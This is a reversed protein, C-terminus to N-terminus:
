PLSCRFTSFCLPVSIIMNLYLINTKTIYRVVFRTWPLALQLAPACVPSVSPLKHVPLIPLSVAPFGIPPNYLTACLIVCRSLTCLTYHLLMPSCAVLVGPVYFSSALVFTLSCAPECVLFHKPSSVALVCFGPPLGFYVWPHPLLMRLNTYWNSYVPSHIDSYHLPFLLFHDPLYFARPVFQSHSRYIYLSAVASVPLGCRACPPWLPCPSAGASM